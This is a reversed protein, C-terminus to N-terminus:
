FRFTGALNVYKDTDASLNFNIFPLNLGLGATYVKDSSDEEYYAGGRLALAGLFLRKELGLHYINSGEEPMELDAAVTTGIPFPIRVAGGLTITRPLKDNLDEYDEDWSLNSTLNRVNVGLNIRNTARVLAGVDVGYGSASSKSRNFAQDLDYEKGEEYNGDWGEINDASLSYGDYQGSLYKLNGGVALSGINFPMSSLERGYSIVGQSIFTNAASKKANDLKKIDEESKIEEPMTGEEIVRLQNNFLFGAGISRFNVVGMGDFKLTANGDDTLELEKFSEFTLGDKVDDLLDREVGDFGMGLNVQAGLLGSRVLGAPNWYIASADDAVAVFAGGMGHAKAGFRNVDTMEAASAPGVVMVVLLLTLVLSYYRKM